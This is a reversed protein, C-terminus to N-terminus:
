LTVGITKKDIRIFITSDKIKSVEKVVENLKYAITDRIPETSLSVKTDFIGVTNPIIILAQGPRIDKKEKKDGYATASGDLVFILVSKENVVFYFTGRRLEVDALTTSIVCSSNTDDEPYIFTATGNLLTISLSSQGIKIKEPYNSNNLIEQSFSNISFDSNTDIKTTLGNSFYLFTSKDVTSISYPHPNKIDIETTKGNQIYVGNSQTQGFVSLALFLM